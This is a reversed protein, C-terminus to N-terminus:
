LVIILFSSMSIVSVNFISLLEFIDTVMSEFEFFLIDNISVESLFLFSPNEFLNGFVLVGGIM